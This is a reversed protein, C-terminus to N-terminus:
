IFDGEISSMRKRQTSISWTPDFKYHFEILGKELTYIVSKPFWANNGKHSILVAKETVHLITINILVETEEPDNGEDISDLWGIWDEASM